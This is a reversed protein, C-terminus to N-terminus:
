DKGKAQGGFAGAFRGLWGVVWGVEGERGTWLAWFVRSFALFM